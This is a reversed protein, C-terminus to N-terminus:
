SLNDRTQFSFFISPNISLCQELCFFLFYDSCDPKDKEGIVENDFSPICWTNRRKEAKDYVFFEAGDKDM